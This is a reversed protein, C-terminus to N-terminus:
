LAKSKGRFNDKQVGKMTNNLFIVMEKNNSKEWYRLSKEFYKKSEDLNNGSLEIAGFVLEVWANHFKASIYEWNEPIVKSFTNIARPLDGMQYFMFGKSIKIKMLDVDFENTNFYNEAENFRKLASKYNKRELDILALNNQVRMFDTQDKTKRFIKKAKQFYDWAKDLDSEVLYTMGLINNVFGIRSHQDNEAKTLRLLNEGFLKAKNFDGHGWYSQCLGILSEYIMERNSIELGILNAERFKGISAHFNNSQYELKGQFILLFGLNDKSIFNKQNVFGHLINLWEGFDGRMEILPLSKCMLALAKNITETYRCGYRVAQRLNAQDLIPVDLKKNIWYNLNLDVSNLFESKPDFESPKTM